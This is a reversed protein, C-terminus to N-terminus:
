KCNNRTINPPIGSYSSYFVVENELIGVLLYRTINRVSAVAAEEKTNIRPAEKYDRISARYILFGTTMAHVSNRWIASLTFWGTYPM